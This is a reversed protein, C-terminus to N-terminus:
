KTFKISSVIKIFVQPDVDGDNNEITIINGANDLPIMIDTQTPRANNNYTVKTAIKGDVVINETKINYPVGGADKMGQIIESVTEPRGLNQNYTIGEYIFLGEGFSVQTQTGIVSRTPTNWNTPYQFSFGLLSDTYTKTGSEVAPLITFAKSRWANIGKDDYDFKVINIYYADPKWSTNDENPVIWTYSGISADVSSAITSVAQNDKESNPNSLYIYVNGLNKQQWTITVRQGPKFIEGGKPNNITIIQQTTSAQINIASITSIKEQNHTYFRFIFIVVVFVVLLLVFFRRQNNKM